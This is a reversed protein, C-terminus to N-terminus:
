RNRKWDAAKQAGESALREYKAREFTVDGVVIELQRETRRVVEPNNSSLGGSLKNLTEIAARGEQVLVEKQRFLREEWYDRGPFQVEGVAIDGLERPGLGERQRGEGL